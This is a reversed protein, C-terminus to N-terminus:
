DKLIGSRLVNLSKAPNQIANRVETAGAFGQRFEECMFITRSLWILFM